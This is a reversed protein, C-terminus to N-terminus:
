SWTSSLVTKLTRNKNTCGCMNTTRNLKKWECHSGDWIRCRFNQEWLSYPLPHGSDTMVVMKLFHKDSGWTSCKALGWHQMRQERSSPIKQNMAKSTTPTPCPHYKQLHNPSSSSAKHGWEIFVEGDKELIDIWSAPIKGEEKKILM